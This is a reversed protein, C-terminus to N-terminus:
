LDLSRQVLEGSLSYFGSFLPCAPVLMSGSVLAVFRHYFGSATAPALEVQRGSPAPTSTGGESGDGLIFWTLIISEHWSIDKAHFYKIM